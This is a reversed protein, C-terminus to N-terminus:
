LILLSALERMGSIPLKHSKERERKKKRILRALLKYNKSVKGFFWKKTENKEVSKRQKRDNIEVRNDNGKNQKSQKM